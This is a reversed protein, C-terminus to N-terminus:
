GRMEFDIPVLKDEKIFFGIISEQQKGIVIPEDNLKFLEYDYDEPLTTLLKFQKPKM